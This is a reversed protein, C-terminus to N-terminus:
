MMTKRSIGSVWQGRTLINCQKWFAHFFLIFIKKLITSQCFLKSSLVGYRNILWMMVLNIKWWRDCLLLRSSPDQAVCNRILNNIVFSTFYIHGTSVNVNSLVCFRHRGKYIVIHWTSSYMNKKARLKRTCERKCKLVIVIENFTETKYKVNRRIHYLRVVELLSEKNYFLQGKQFEYEKTFTTDCAWSSWSLRTYTWRFFSSFCLAYM